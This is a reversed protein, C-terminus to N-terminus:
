GCWTKSSAGNKRTTSGGHIRLANVRSRMGRRSMSRMSVVFGAGSKKPKTAVTKLGRRYAQEIIKNDGNINDALVHLDLGAGELVRVISRATAVVEGDRDSGLLRLLKGLKDTVPDLVSM